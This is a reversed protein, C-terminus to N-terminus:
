EGKIRFVKKLIDDSLYSTGEDYHKLNEIYMDRKYRMRFITEISLMIAVVGLIILSVIEKNM